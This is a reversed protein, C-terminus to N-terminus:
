WPDSVAGPSPRAPCAHQTPAGRASGACGRPRRPGSVRAAGPPPPAAEKSGGSRVRTDRGGRAVRSEIRRRRALAARARPRRSPPAPGLRRGLRALARGKAPDHTLACVRWKAPAEWFSGRADDPGPSRALARAPVEWLRVRVADINAVGVADFCCYHFTAGWRPPPASPLPFTM